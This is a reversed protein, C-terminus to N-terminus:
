VGQRLRVEQRGPLPRQDPLPRERRRGRPLRRRHAGQDGADPPTRRRERGPQQHAGGGPHRAPLDPDERLRLDRSPLRPEGAEEAPGQRPRLLDTAGGGHRAARLDDRLGASLLPVGALAAAVLRDQRDPGPAAPPLPVARPFTSIAPIRVNPKWEKSPEYRYIRLAASFTTLLQITARLTIARGKRGKGTQAPGALAPFPSCLMCTGRSIEVRQISREGGSSASRRLRAPRRSRCLSRMVLQRM